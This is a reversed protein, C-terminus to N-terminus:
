SRSEMVAPWGAMKTRTSPCMATAFVAANCDTSDDAFRRCRSCVLLLKGGPLPQVQHYNMRQDRSRRTSLDKGDWRLILFDHPTDTTVRAFSQGKPQDDRYSTGATVALIYAAGDPGVALSVIDWGALHDDLGEVWVQAVLQRLEKDPDNTPKLPAEDDQM